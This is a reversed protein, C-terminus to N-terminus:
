CIYLFIDSTVNLSEVTDSVICPSKGGCELIVPTLNKSAAEMVLKGVYSSGTFSVYDFLGSQILESTPQAGCLKVAFCEADLYQPLLDYLLQSTATSYESPKLMVCNGAAIAGIIPNLSLYIPYNWPSIVLVIGYPENVTYKEYICFPLSSDLIENKMWQKLHKLAWKAEIRLKALEFVDSEYESKGLDSRLAEKINNQEVITFQIIAKLQNKRWKLPRTRGSNFSKRLNLLVDYDNADM